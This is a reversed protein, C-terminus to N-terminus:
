EGTVHGSEALDKLFTLNNKHWGDGYSDYTGIRVDQSVVFHGKLVQLIRPDQAWVPAGEPTMLLVVTIRDHQPAVSQLPGYELVKQATLGYCLRAPVRVGSPATDGALHPAKLSNQVSQDESPGDFIAMAEPGTALFLDGAFHQTTEEQGPPGEDPKPESSDDLDHLGLQAATPMAPHQAHVRWTVPVRQVLGADMLAQIFPGPEVNRPGEGFLVGQTSANYGEGPEVGKEVRNAVDISRPYASLSLFAESGISLCFRRSDGNEIEGRDAPDHRVQELIADAAKAAEADSAAYSREPLACALCSMAVLCIKLSVGQVRM